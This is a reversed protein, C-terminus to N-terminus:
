PQEGEQPTALPQEEVETIDGTSFDIKFKKGCLCTQIDTKPAVNNWWHSDNYGRWSLKQFHREQIDFEYHYWDWFLDNDLQNFEAATNM